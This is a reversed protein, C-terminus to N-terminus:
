TCHSGTRALTAKGWRHWLASTPLINSLMEAWGSQGEYVTTNSCGRGRSVDRSEWRGNQDSMVSTSTDACHCSSQDDAETTLLISTVSGVIQCGHNSRGRRITESLDSGSLDLGSDKWGVCIPDWKMLGRHMHGAAFWSYYPWHTDVWFNPPPSCDKCSAPSSATWTSSNVTAVASV